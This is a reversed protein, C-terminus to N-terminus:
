RPLAVTTGASSTHNGGRRVRLATATLLVTAFAVYVPERAALYGTLTQTYWLHVVGYDRSHLFMLSVSAAVDLALCVSGVVFATKLNFQYRSDVTRVIRSARLLLWAVLAAGAAAVFHEGAYAIFTPYWVRVSDTPSLVWLFLTPVIDMTAFLLVYSIIKM